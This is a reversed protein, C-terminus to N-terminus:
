RRNNTQQERGIEPLPELHQDMEEVFEDALEWARKVSKGEIV